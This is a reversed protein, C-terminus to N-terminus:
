QTDSFGGDKRSSSRMKCKTKRLSWKHMYKGQRSGFYLDEQILTTHMNGGRLIGGLSREGQTNVSLSCLTNETCLHNTSTPSSQLFTGRFFEDSYTEPLQRFVGVLFRVVICSTSLQWLIQRGPLYLIQFVYYPGSFPKYFMPSSLCFSYKPLQIGKPVIHKRSIIISLKSFIYKLPETLGHRQTQDGTKTWLVRPAM